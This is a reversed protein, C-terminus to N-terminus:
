VPTSLSLAVDGDDWWRLLGLGAAALEREVRERSFKASVETRMEEGAAFRVALDVARVSVSQATSARLRMEVWEREPDWVAVHQYADLRFDADLERNLVALLNRNFAATVGAPDDYAAVLRTPEKVLDTGLLFTEGDVMCSRLLRLFAARQDPELNGITSGLFAFMRQGERPLLQLHQEFDAVVAHVDVSSLEEAIAAGASRLVSPDVDVPVYRRLTGHEHFASLLVRTKESTGSGLEVLTTAGSVTALEPACADLLAREARTAYYEPLGTIQDFLESGRADYFWRPPLQKPSHTLGKSVDSMLQARARDPLLHSELDFSM